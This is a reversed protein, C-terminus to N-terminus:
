KKKDSTCFNGLTRRQIYDDFKQEREVVEAIPKPAAPFAILVISM